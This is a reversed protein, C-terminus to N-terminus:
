GRPPPSSGSPLRWFPWAPPSSFSAALNDERGAGRARAGWVGCPVQQICLGKNRTPPQAATPESWARANEGNQRLLHQHHTGTQKPCLCLSGLLSLFFSGFLLLFSLLLLALFFVRRPLFRLSFLVGLFFRFRALLGLLLGLHPAFSFKLCLLSPLLFLCLSNSGFFGRALLGDKAVKLDVAAIVVVHRRLVLM